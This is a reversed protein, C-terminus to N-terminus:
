AEIGTLSETVHGGDAGFETAPLGMSRVLSLLVLSANDGNGRYHVGPNKFFGGASGAIVIPYDEISHAAGDSVDSTAMIASQKLLNSDGEAAAMFKGLFVGFQKMTWITSKDIKDQGAAGQHTIDHNGGDIGIPHFVPNSASGTFDITFVRTLDCALALALVGSLAEVREEFPEGNPNTALPGPRTPMTCQASLNTGTGSLRKEIARINEAHQELRAKDRAGVRQSLGNLDTLVSDLVSTKMESVNKLLEPDQAPGSNGGGAFVRDFLKVPDYEQPNGSDPGNHSIFQLTTGEVKDLRQSIGLELSKFPTMAGTVAAITQDISPGAFTSRYPASGAPQVIFDRGSLIGVSGRHHGQPSKDIKIKMGTVVNLYDKYAMLPELQPSLDWTAGVTAPDWRKADIGRGNGWFFVGFRKPLDTGDAFADGNGGLFHELIPLGLAVPVGAAIGRLFARRKLSSHVMRLEKM